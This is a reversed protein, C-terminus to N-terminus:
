SQQTSTDTDTSQPGIVARTIYVTFVPILMMGEASLIVEMVNGTTTVPDIYCGATSMSMAAWWLATWLTDVQPNIYHEGEYFMLGAFFVSACLWILYVYFTSMVRSSTLAGTIMAFVFAARIMPVISLLYLAQSSPHIGAVEVINLYPISVLIFFLHRVIFHWKKPAFLWEVIIDVQFLICVWLQFRRYSPNALFANGALTDRTIWAIMTGSAILVAWHLTTLLATEAKTLPQHGICLNM